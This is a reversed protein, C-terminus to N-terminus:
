APPTPCYKALGEAVGDEKNGAVVHDAVSKAEPRANGVAVGIGVGELMEVDNYNDGFAICDGLSLYPYADELLTRVGTLKSIRADAIELYDDKSRYLHLQSSFESELLTILRDLRGPEGMCMIKHAGHGAERWNAITTTLNQVTPSTRTNHEERKAYHDMSEVYWEDVYYLSVSLPASQSFERIVEAVKLDIAQSSVTRGDVVVLGGNYAILPLGEIDLDAQLHTMARPMRSSILIFPIGAASLRDVERRTAPAIHRDKDLLTGDIDTFAIRPTKM